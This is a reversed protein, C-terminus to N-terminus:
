GIGKAGDTLRNNKAKKSIEELNMGDSVEKVVVPTSQEYSFYRM